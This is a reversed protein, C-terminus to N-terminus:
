TKPRSPSPKQGFSGSARPASPAPEPVLERVRGQQACASACRDHHASCAGPCWADFSRSSNRPSATSPTTTASWRRCRTGAAARPRASRRQALRDHVGGRQGLHGGLELRPSQTAARCPRPRPRRAALLGRDEGVRELRHDAGDVEVASPAPRPTSTRRTSPAGVDRGRDRADAPVVVLRRQLLEGARREVRGEASRRDSSSPGVVRLVEERRHMSPPIPRPSPSPRDFFCASCARRGLRRRLGGRALRLVTRGVM